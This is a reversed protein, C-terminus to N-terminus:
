VIVHPVFTGSADIIPVSAEHIGLGVSQGGIWWSNVVAFNGDTESLNAREQYIMQESALDGQTQDVIQNNPGFITVNQGGQGTVPKSVYGLLPFEPEVITSTKLLNPHFANRNWMEVMLRKNSALIKWAPEILRIRGQVVQNILDPGFTGALMWNLPALHILNTIPQNQLDVFTVVEYLDDDEDYFNEVARGIDSFSIFRTALGGEQAVRQLYAAVGDIEVDPSMGGIYVNRFDPAGDTRLQGRLTNAIDRFVDVTAAHIDNFQSLEPFVEDKWAAQVAGAEVFTSPYDGNYDLLKIDNGNVAFDFRGFMTPEETEAWSKEIVAILDDSYGFIPLSRSTIIADITDLMMGNVDVTAQRISEIEAATFQYAAAENWYPNFNPTHWNFGVAQVNNQWTPRPTLTIRKM